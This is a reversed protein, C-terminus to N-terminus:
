CSIQRAIFHFQLILIFIFLCCNVLFVCLFYNFSAHLLLWRILIVLRFSFLWVYFNFIYCFRLFYLGGSLSSSQVKCMGPYHEISSYLCITLQPLVNWSLARVVSRYLCITLQPLKRSLARVVSSYLCMKLQPVVNRSLARVVSSYLCMTLWSLARVVTSYLRM